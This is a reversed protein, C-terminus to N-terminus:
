HIRCPSYSSVPTHSVFQLGQTATRHRSVLTRPMSQLQQGTHTLCVTAAPRHTRSPSYSSAPTHSVSQLQQGTHALCVTAAAGQTNCHRTSPRATRPPWRSPSRRPACTTSAAPRPWRERRRGSASGRRRHSRSTDARRGTGGPPCVPM